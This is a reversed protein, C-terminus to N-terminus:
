IGEAPGSGALPCGPPLEVGVGVQGDQPEPPHDDDVANVEAPQPLIQGVPQCGDVELPDGVGLTLVFGRERSSTRTSVRVTMASPPFASMRGPSRPVAASCRALRAAVKRAM